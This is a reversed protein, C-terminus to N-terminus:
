CSASLMWGTTPPTGTSTVCATTPMTCTPPSPAATALRYEVSVVAAQQRDALAQLADGVM